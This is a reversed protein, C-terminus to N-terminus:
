VPGPTSTTGNRQDEDPGNPNLYREVHPMLRLVVLAVVTTAVALGYSRAGAAMGIAAVVWITAATTLGAVHNGQRLITGAGLFGIGSVVTSAVRSRDATTMPVLEISMLTFLASGLAILMNTRLGAAKHALQRDVGVAGGCLTAVVLRVILDGVADPAFVSDM